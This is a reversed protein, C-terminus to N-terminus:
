ARSTQIIKEPNMCFGAVANDVVKTACTHWPHKGVYQAPEVARMVARFARVGAELLDAWGYQFKADLFGFFTGTYGRDMPVVLDPVLHHLAKTAAVLKVKNDVIDLSHILDRLQGIVATAHFSEADLHLTDLTIIQQARARIAQQFAPLPVLRSGRKGNAL